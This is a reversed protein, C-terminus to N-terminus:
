WHGRFLKLFIRQGTFANSSIEKGDEDVAAVRAQDKRLRDIKAPQEIVAFIVFLIQLFGQYAYQALLALGGEARLDAAVLMKGRFYDFVGDHMVQDAVFGAVRCAGVGPGM